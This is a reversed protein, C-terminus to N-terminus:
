CRHPKLALAPLIIYAPHFLIKRHAVPRGLPHGLDHRRRTRRCCKPDAHERAPAAAELVAELEVLLRSRVVQHQLALARPHKHVRGAEIEQCPRPEVIRVLQHPAM